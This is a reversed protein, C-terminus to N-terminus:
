DYRYWDLDRMLADEIAIDYMTQEELHAQYQEDRHAEYEQLTAEDMDLADAPMFAQEEGYDGEARRAAEGMGEETPLGREVPAPPIVPVTPATFQDALPIPKIVSNLTINEM